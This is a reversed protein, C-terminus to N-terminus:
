NNENDGAICRRIIAALETPNEIMPMHCANGVFRFGIKEEAAKDLCLDSIRGSYNAVGRDGYIGFISGKIGYLYPTFDFNQQLSSKLDDGYFPAESQLMSKVYDGFTRMNGPMMLNRYFKKAPRLNSEIFVVAECDFKYKSALELAIIGGMSHGLLFDFHEDGYTEYVWKTIDSVRHANRTIEHPYTVFDVDFGSFADNLGDWIDVTCNMGYLLLGRKM